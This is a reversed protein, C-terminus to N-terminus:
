KDAYRKMFKQKKMNKTKWFVQNLHELNCLQEKDFVQNVDEGQFIRM